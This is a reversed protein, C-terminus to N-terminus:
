TTGRSKLKTWGSTGRTKGEEGAGAGAGEAQKEEGSVDGDKGKPGVIPEEEWENGELIEWEAGTRESLLMAKVKEM